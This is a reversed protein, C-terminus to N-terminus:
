GVKGTIRAVAEDVQAKVIIPLNEDLWSKLMPRLLDKTIDELTLGSPMLPGPTPTPAVSKVATNLRDFASAAAAAAGDDVLPESESKETTAGAMETGEEIPQPEATAVAGSHTAAVPEPEVAPEPEAVPEPEIAPEAKAKPEPEPEAVPDFHAAPEPESAAEVAHIPEAVPEPPSLTEVSSAVHSPAATDPPTDDESIIRRISALIEDMTPEPALQEPM